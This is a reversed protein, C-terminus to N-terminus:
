KNKGFARELSQERQQILNIEIVDRLRGYTYEDIEENELQTELRRLQENLAQKEKLRTKVFSNIFRVSNTKRQVSFALGM